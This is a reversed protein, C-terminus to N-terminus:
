HADGWALPMVKLIEMGPFLDDLNHEIIQRMPIFRRTGPIQYVRTPLEPM